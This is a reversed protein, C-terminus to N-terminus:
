INKSLLSCSVIKNVLFVVVVKLVKIIKDIWIGGNEKNEIVGVISEFGKLWCYFFIM